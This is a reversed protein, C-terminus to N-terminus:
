PRCRSPKRQERIPAYGNVCLMPNCRQAAKPFCFVGCYPAAERDTPTAPSATFNWYMKGTRADLATVTGPESVLVAVETTAAAIRADPRYESDSVCRSAAKATWLPAPAKSPKAQAVCAFMLLCATLLIKM